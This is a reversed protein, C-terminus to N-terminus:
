LIYVARRSANQLGTTGPGTREDKVVECDGMKLSLDDHLDAISGVGTANARVTLEMWHLYVDVVDPRDPKNPTTDTAM